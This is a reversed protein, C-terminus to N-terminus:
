AQCYREKPAGCGRESSGAEDLDLPGCLPTSLAAADHSDGSVVGLGFIFSIRSILAKTYVKFPVVDTVLAGLWPAQGPHQDVACRPFDDTGCFVTRWESGPPRVQKEAKSLDVM